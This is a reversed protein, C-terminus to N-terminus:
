LSTDHNLKNINEELENKFDLFNTFLKIHSNEKLKELTIDFERQTFSITKPAVACSLCFNGGEGICISLLSKNMITCDRKILDLNPNNAMEKVTLDIFNRNIYKKIDDYISFIHDKHIKYEYNDDITQEGIIILSYKKPIKNIINFFNKYIDNYYKRYVWRVKTSLVIYNKYEFLYSPDILYKTLNFNKLHVNKELSKIIDYHDGIIWLCDNKSSYVIEYPKENFLLNIFNKIFDYFEKKDNRCIKILNLNPEIYITDYDKKLQDLIYKIIIISGVGLNIKFGIKKM